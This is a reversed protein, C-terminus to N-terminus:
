ATVRISAQATSSVARSSMPKYGGYSSVRPTSQVTSISQASQVTQLDLPVQPTTAGMQAAIAAHKVAGSHQDGRFFAEDTARAMKRMMVARVDGLTPSQPMAIMRAEDYSESVEVTSPVDGSTSVIGAHNNVDFQVGAVVGTMLAQFEESLEVSDTVSSQVADDSQVFPKALENNQIGNRQANGASLPQGLVREANLTATIM